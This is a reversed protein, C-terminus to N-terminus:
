CSLSEWYKTQFYNTSNIDGLKEVIDFLISKSFIKYNSSFKRGLGTKTLIFGELSANAASWYDTINDGVMWSRSLDIEYEESAQLLMGPNPKRSIHDVAYEPIVGDKHYPSFYTKTIKANQESLMENLRNEIEFYREITMMGRSVASQNTIIFVKMGLKTFMCIADSSGDILELDDPDTIYGKEVTVVGDRDLFLAPEKM